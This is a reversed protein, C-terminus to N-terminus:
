AIRPPPTVVDYFVSHLDQDNMCPFTNERETEITKSVSLIVRNNFSYDALKVLHFYRANDDDEDDRSKNQNHLVIDNVYEAVSNIDSIRSGDSAYADM